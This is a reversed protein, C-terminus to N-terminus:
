HGLINSHCPDSFDSSGAGKSGACPSESPNEFCSMGIVIQFIGTKWNPVKLNPSELSLRGKDSGV